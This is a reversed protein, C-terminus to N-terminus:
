QIWSCGLDVPTKGGDQYSRARGGTRDRGELVLVSRGQAALTRAAVLGSFGAGLIITDFTTAM